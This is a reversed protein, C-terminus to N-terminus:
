LIYILIANKKESASQYYKSLLRFYELLHSFDDQSWTMPYIHLNNMKDPNYHIALEQESFESLAASIKKVQSPTKYFVSIFDSDELVNGGLITNALISDGGWPVGTLLYHIGNWAKDLDLSEEALHDNNFVVETLSITNALISQLLEPSIAKIYGIMGM